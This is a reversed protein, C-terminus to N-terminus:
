WLRAIVALADAVAVLPVRGGGFSVQHPQVKLRSIRYAIKLPIGPAYFCREQERSKM